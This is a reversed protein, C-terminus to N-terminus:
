FPLFSYNMQKMQKIALRYQTIADMGCYTLLIQTKRPDDLLETIRNHSNSGNKTEKSQLYPAVESAYDIVGFQVYTQFKLGTTEQRNDLIHSALMSDWEWNIVQQKLRHVSWTDEYKINQAMKGVEKRALLDLFPKRKDKTEPMLFVYCEDENIAISACIIRHNHAHPKLGTTEYDISILGTKIENLPALDTIVHIKPTKWKPFPTNFLAAINLFDTNWITNLEEKDEKMLKIDYVPCVWAKFDQDPITWGRWKHITGLRGKKWRHGLISEVALTGLPIIIKPQYEQIIHLIQKRCNEVEKAGITAAKSPSCGVSHTILCDEFLDIKIRKLHRSLLRGRSDQLPKGKEDDTQSPFDSIILIGKKFNGYPVMKPTNINKGLGCAACSQVRGGPRFVSQTEHLTFFGKM